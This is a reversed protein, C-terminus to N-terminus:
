RGKLYNDLDDLKMAEAMTKLLEGKVKGNGAFQLMSGSELYVTLSPNVGTTDLQATRGQVRFSEMGNSGGFIAAMQGLQALGGLGAAAGGMNTLSVKVSGDAGKYSREINTIGIASGSSVKEGNYGALQDPLFAELKKSHLTEIEKSAWKLEELAKSYNQSAILDNVKKFIANIDEAAAFNVAMMAVILSLGLLKKM